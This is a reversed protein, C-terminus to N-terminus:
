KVKSLLESFKAIYWHPQTEKNNNPSVLNEGYNLGKTTVSKFNKPGHSSQRTLTTLYGNAELRKNFERVTLTAGHETLLETASKTPLSSGVTNHPSDVAYVLLIETPLNRSLSYSRIAQLKSSESFNLFRAAFEIFELDTPTKSQPSSYSGTKRISPLVVSTVWKKFSKAEPKRSTLILRYLGSENIFNAKDNGRSIGEITNLAQEDADLRTMAMTVNGITLAACVDAAVFWISGQDDTITRILKSDFQFTTPQTTNM